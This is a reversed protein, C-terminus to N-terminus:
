SGTVLGVPARQLAQAQASDIQPLPGVAQAARFGRCSPTCYPSFASCLPAILASSNTVSLSITPPM